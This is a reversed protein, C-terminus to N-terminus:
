CGRPFRSHLECTYVRFYHCASRCGWGRMKQDAAGDWMHMSMERHDGSIVRKHKHKCTHPKIWYPITVAPFAAAGGCARFWRGKSVCMMVWSLCGRPRQAGERRLGVYHRTEWAMWLAYHAHQRPHSCCSHQRSTVGTLKGFICCRIGHMVGATCSMQMPTIYHKVPSAPTHNTASILQSDIIFIQSWVSIDCLHMKKRQTCVDATNM